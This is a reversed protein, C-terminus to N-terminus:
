PMFRKANDCGCEGARYCDRAWRHGIPAPCRYRTIIRWLWPMNVYIWAIM